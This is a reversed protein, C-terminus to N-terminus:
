TVATRLYAIYETPSFYKINVLTQNYGKIHCCRQFKSNQTLNSKDHLRLKQMIFLASVPSEIIYCLLEAIKSFASLIQYTGLLSCHWDNLYQGNVHTKHSLVQSGVFSVQDYSNFDHESKRKKKTIEKLYFPLNFFLNQLFHWKEKMCFFLLIAVDSLKHLM